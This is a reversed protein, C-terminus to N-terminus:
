KQSRRASAATGVLGPGILVRSKVMERGKSVM